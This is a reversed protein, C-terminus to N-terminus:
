FTSTVSPAFITPSAEALSRRTLKFCTIQSGLSLSCIFGFNHGKTKPTKM